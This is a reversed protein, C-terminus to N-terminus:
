RSGGTSSGACTILNASGKQLKILRALVDHHWASRQNRLIGGHQERNGSHQWKLGHKQTLHLPRRRPSGGALLANAGIVDLVYPTCSPMVGKELHKAIKGEAIVELLLRNFPGPLETRPDIGDIWVM